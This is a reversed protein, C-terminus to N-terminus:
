ITGAIMRDSQDLLNERRAEADGRAVEIWCSEALGLAAPDEEAFNEGPSKRDCSPKSLISIKQTAYLRQSITCDLLRIM